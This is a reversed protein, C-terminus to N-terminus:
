GHVTDLLQVKVNAPAKTHSFAIYLQGHLFVDDAIHLGVHSLTQGQSKNITMAYVLQLPFQKRAFTLPLSSNDFIFKIRSIFAVNGAGKSTIIKAEVVRMTFRRVILCTGNCLRTSPNLNRLLMVPTGIKLPLKHSPMGSVELTNLFKSPNTNAVKTDEAFDVSLFDVQVRPLYSLVMANILSVEKNHPALIARERLYENTAQGKHLRPYIAVAMARTDTPPLVMMDLCKIYDEDITELENNGFCLLWNAFTHNRLNLHVVIVDGVRMNELLHFVEISEWLYSNKISAFIINAHSGRPIIPLVQRFDGSMVFVIGGFPENKDTLDHLTQDMAEFTLKNTMPAEDWLIFKTQRILATLDDQKHICCFSIRDLAILIKLYSHATRGGLLLLAAIGSSAVALAIDGYLRMTNLILNETYTKGKGGPGDIFLVKAHHAVYADIIGNYAARQGDNLSEITMAVEVQLVEVNYDREVELLCNTKLRDFAISPALLGFDELTKSFKALADRLSHLAWNEIQEISLEM